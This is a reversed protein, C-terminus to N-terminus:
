VLIICIYSKTDNFFDLHYKSIFKFIKLLEIM